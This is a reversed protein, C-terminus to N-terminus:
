HMKRQRKRCASVEVYPFEGLQTWLWSRRSKQKLALMLEDDSCPGTGTFGEPTVNLNYLYRTFLLHSCPVVARIAHTHKDTVGSDGSPNTSLNSSSPKDHDSHEVKPSSNQDSEGCADPKVDLEDQWSDCDDQWCPGVITALMTEENVELVVAKWGQREGQLLVVGRGPKAICMHRHGHRLHINRQVQNMHCGECASADPVSLSRPHTQMDQTDHSLQKPTEHLEILPIAFVLAGKRHESCCPTVVERLQATSGKYHHVAVKMIMATYELEMRVVEKIDNAIVVLYAEGANITAICSEYGWVPAMSSCKTRLFENVAQLSESQSEQETRIDNWTLGLRKEVIRAEENLFREKMAVSETFRECVEMVQDFGQEAARALVKSSDDDAIHADVFQLCHNKLGDLCYKEAAYLVGTVTYISLETPESGYLYQLVCKFADVSVDEVRVPEGEGEVGERMSGYLMAAFVPSTAALICRVARFVRITAGADPSGVCFAVDTYKEDDLVHRLGRVVEPHM